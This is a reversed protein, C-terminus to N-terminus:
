WKGPRKAEEKIVVFGCKEYLASAAVNDAEVAVSMVFERGAIEAEQKAFSIFKEILAKGIVQRRGEPLTFMSNIRSHM